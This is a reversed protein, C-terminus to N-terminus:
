EARRRRRMMEIREWDTTRVRAARKMRELEELRRAENAPTPKKSLKWQRPHAV